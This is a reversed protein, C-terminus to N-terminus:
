GDFANFSKEINNNIVKQVSELETEAAKHETEIQDLTLELRKDKRQIKAMELDYKAKAEADDSDDYSERFVSDGAYNRWNEEDNRVYTM